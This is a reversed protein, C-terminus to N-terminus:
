DVALERDGYGAQIASGTRGGLKQQLLKRIEANGSM